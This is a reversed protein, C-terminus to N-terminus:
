VGINMKPLHPLFYLLVGAEKCLTKMKHQYEVLDSTVHERIEGIVEVFRQKNYAPIEHNAAELEAKRIWCAVANPDSKLRGSARFAPMREDWFKGFAIPSAVAFFKLLEDLKAEAKGSVDPVWDMKVM